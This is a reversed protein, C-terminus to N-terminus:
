GGQSGLDIKGFNFACGSDTVTLSDNNGTTPDNNTVTVTLTSRTTTGNWGTCITAPNMAQGFTM